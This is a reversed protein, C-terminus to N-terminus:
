LIKCDLLEIGLSKLKKICTCCFRKEIELFQMDLTTKYHPRKNCLCVFDPDELNDNFSLHIKTGRYVRWPYLKPGLFTRDFKVIM